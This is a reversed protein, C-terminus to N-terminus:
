RGNVINRFEQHIVYYGNSLVARGRLGEESVDFLENLTGGEKLAAQPVVLDLGGKLNDQLRLIDRWNNLKVRSTDLRFKMTGDGEPM